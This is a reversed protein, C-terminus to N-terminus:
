VLDNPMILEIWECGVDLFKVAHLQKGGRDCVEADTVAIFGDAQRIYDTLRAGPLLSIRGTIRFSDTYIIVPTTEDFNTM